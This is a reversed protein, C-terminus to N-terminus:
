CAIIVPRSAAASALRSLDGPNGTLIRAGPRALLVVSAEAADTTGAASQAARQCDSCLELGDNVAVRLRAMMTRDDRDGRDVAVLAGADLVLASM